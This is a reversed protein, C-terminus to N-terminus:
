GAKPEKPIRRELIQLFDTYHEVWRRLTPIDVRTSSCHIGAMGYDPDLGEQWVKIWEDGSSQIMLLRM